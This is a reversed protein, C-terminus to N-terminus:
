LMSASSSRTFREAFEPSTPVHRGYRDAVHRAAWGAGPTTETLAAAALEFLGLGVLTAKTEDDEDPFLWPAACLIAGSAADLTLHVPMPLVKLVGFEYRTLLSYGLAGAAMNTMTRTVRDGYGMIRPLAAMTGATLLDLVGHTRTSLLKM